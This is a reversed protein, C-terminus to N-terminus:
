DHHTKLKREFSWTFSNWVHKSRFEPSTLTGRDLVCKLKLIHRLKSKWGIVDCIWGNQKLAGFKEGSARHTNRLSPELLPAVGGWKGTGGGRGKRRRWSTTVSLMFPDSGCQLSWICSPMGPGSLMGSLICVSHRVFHGFMHLISHWFLEFCIGSLISSLSGSLIDSILRIINGVSGPVRIKFFM